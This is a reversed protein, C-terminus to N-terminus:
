TCVSDKFVNKGYVVTNPLQLYENFKDHIDKVKMKHILFNYAFINSLYVLNKKNPDVAFPGDLIDYEIFQPNTNQIVDLWEKDSFEKLSQDVLDPKYTCEDLMCDVKERFYKNVRNIDQMSYLLQKWKLSDKNYDYIILQTDAHGHRAILKESINGSAPAYIVDFNQNFNPHKENNKAYVINSHRNRESDLADSRRREPYCFFKTSRERDLNLITEGSELVKSIYEAQEANHVKKYGTGGKVWHPTYDDHVNSRSREYNLVEGTYNSFSPKGIKRWHDLNVFITQPHLRGYEKNPHFLLHGRCAKGSAIFEQFYKFINEDHESYYFSGIYSIIAHTYCDAQILADDITEAFIVHSKKSGGSNLPIGSFWTLTAMYEAWDDWEIKPYNVIVHVHNSPVENHRSHEMIYEGFEKFSQM